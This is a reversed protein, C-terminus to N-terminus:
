KCEYAKDETSTTVYFGIKRSQRKGGPKGLSSNQAVREKSVCAAYRAKESDFLM